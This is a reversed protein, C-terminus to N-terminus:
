IRVPGQTVFSHRGMQDKAIQVTIVCEADPIEELCDIIDKSLLRQLPFKETFQGGQHFMVAESSDLTVDITVILKKKINAKM